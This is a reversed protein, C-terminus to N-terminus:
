LMQWKNGKQSDGARHHQGGHMSVTVLEAAERRGLTACVCLREGVSDHAAPLAPFAIKMPLSSSPRLSVLALCRCDSTM